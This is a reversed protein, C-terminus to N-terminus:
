DKVPSAKLAAKGDKVYVSFRVRTCTHRQLIQDRNKRLTNLFKEYSVNTPEGCQQKVRLFEDFVQRWDAAEDEYQGAQAAGVVEQQVQSVVTADEDGEDEGPPM